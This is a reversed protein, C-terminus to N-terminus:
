ETTVLTRVPSFQFLSPRTSVKTTFFQMEHRHIMTSFVERCWQIDERYRPRSDDIYNWRSEWRRLLRHMRFHARAVSQECLFLLKKLNSHLSDNVKDLWWSHHRLSPLSSRHWEQSRWWSLAIQTRQGSVSIQSSTKVVPKHESLASTEPINEGEEILYFACHGFFRLIEFKQGSMGSM